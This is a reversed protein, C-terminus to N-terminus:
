EAVTAPKPVEAVIPWRPHKVNRESLMGLNCLSIHRIECRLFGHDGISEETLSIEEHKKALQKATAICGTQKVLGLSRAHGDQSDCDATALLIVCQAGQSIVFQSRSFGIEAALNDVSRLHCAKIEISGFAPRGWSIKEPLHSEVGPLGIGEIPVINRAAVLNSQCPELGREVCNHRFEIVQDGVAPVDEECVCHCTTDRLGLDNESDYVADVLTTARSMHRRLRQDFAIEPLENQLVKVLDRSIGKAVQKFGARGDTGPDFFVEVSDDRAVMQNERTGIPEMTRMTKNKCRFAFYLWTDDRM